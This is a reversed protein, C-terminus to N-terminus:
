SRGPSWIEAHTACNSDPHRDDFHWKKKSGAMYIRMSDPWSILYVSVLRDKGKELTGVMDRTAAERARPKAKPAEAAGLVM